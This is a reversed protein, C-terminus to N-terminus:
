AVVIEGAIKQFGVLMAKPGALDPDAAQAIQYARLADKLRDVQLLGFGLRDYYRARFEPPRSQLQPLELAAALLDVGAQNEKAEFLLDALELRLVLNRPAQGLVEFLRDVPEQLIGMRREIRALVINASEDNPSIELVRQLRECAGILDGQSARMEAIRVQAHTAKPQVRVASNYAISAAVFDKNFRAVEGRALYASALLNSKPMVEDTREGALRIAAEAHESAEPPRSGNLFAQAAIVHLAASVLRNAASGVIEAAALPLGSGEISLAYQLYARIACHRPLGAEMDVIKLRYLDIAERYMGQSAYELSLYYQYILNTPERAVAALLLRLNREEKSQRSREARKYGHHELLVGSAHFRYVAAGSISGLEEHIPREFRVDSHNSALRPAPAQEAEGSDFTSVIDVTAITPGQPDRGVLSRLADIAHTALEEDADLSLIWKATAHEFAFNRAASFDDKWIYSFVRAGLAKSIAISDDTSGTDVVIIEDAIAQISSISRVLNTSENRVIMCVSLRPTTRDTLSRFEHTVKGM